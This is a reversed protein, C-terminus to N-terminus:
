LGRAQRIAEISAGYGEPLQSHSDPPVTSEDLLALSVRQTTTPTPDRERNVAGTKSAGASSTNSTTQKWRTDSETQLLHHQCRPYM